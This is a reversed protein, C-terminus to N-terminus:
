SFLRHFLRYATFTLVLCVLNNFAFHMFAAGMRKNQILAMIELSYASFTTLAGLCGTIIFLKFEYSHRPSQFYATFVGIFASGIANVLLTALPYNIKPFALGVSLSMLYRLVAGLGGGLFIFFVSMM